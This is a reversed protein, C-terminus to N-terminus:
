PADAGPVAEGPAPRTGPRRPLPERPLRLSFRAGEGPRSDVVISGGMAEALKRASMLGIGTGRDGKTTFFGAFLRDRAEEDVGPGNDSVEYVVEEGEARTSLVVRPRARNRGEFAEVANRLFNVLCAHVAEPDLVARGLEPDLGSALEVGAGAATAELLRLAERAPENADVSAPRLAVPRAYDLLQLSLDKLRAVDRRIMEWAKELYERNDKELGKEMVYMSADLGCAMNKIAHSMAAVTQGVAALREAQVLRRTREEVLEELRVTYAALRRKLDRKERARELAFGLLEDDIPKTLFDSAGLRLSEIALRMDGHGTTVIVEVDPDLEKVAGLLGIGDLGPMRIDTVVIGPRSRRFFELAEGGDAATLATFGADALVIAMVRRIGPDDDAFLVTETM